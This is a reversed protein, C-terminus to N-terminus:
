QEFALALIKQPLIDFDSLSKKNAKEIRRVLKNIATSHEIIARQRKKNILPVPISKITKQSINRMSDSTGTANKEIHVRAEPWQLITLLYEPLIQEEDVVLRLTKDSLLRFPYDRKVRVVAGVLEITNARSIILDGEKVRHKEAPQYDGAIAKAEQPQFENWSVASVKLIGFEDKRAPLETTKFSKGAEIALLLEGLPVRPKDKLEALAKERYRAVLNGVERLQVEAAQRAKEVEALQVRLQAAIQRQDKKFKPIKVELDFLVKMNARPMRAGTKELMVASVVQETRLLFALFDRDADTPLLPIIETSCRGSKDPIAVKNLYPRLKGYLIHKDGFLFTNSKGEIGQPNYSLIRGTQAEIQELGIYPLKKALPSDPSIGQRDEVMINKLKTRIYKM